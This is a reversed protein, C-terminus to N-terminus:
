SLAFTQCLLDVYPRTFSSLTPRPPPREGSPGVAGVLSM